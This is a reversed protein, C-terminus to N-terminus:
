GANPSLLSRSIFFTRFLRRELEQGLAAAAVVVAVAVAISPRASTM